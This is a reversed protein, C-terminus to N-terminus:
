LKIVDLKDLDIVGGTDVVAFGEAADKVRAGTMLRIVAPAQWDPFLHPLDAWRYRWDLYKGKRILIIATM